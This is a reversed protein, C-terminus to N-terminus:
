SVTSYELMSTLKMRGLNIPVLYSKNYKIKMGSLEGFCILLWKLHCDYHYDHKLFLMMDGAYQLSIVGEPYLSDMLGVIHGKRAAKILLRTFVNVVLNILLPSLPGGVQAKKRPPFLYLM